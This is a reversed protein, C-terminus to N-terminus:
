KILKVLQFIFGCYFFAACVEQLKAFVDVWIPFFAGVVAM